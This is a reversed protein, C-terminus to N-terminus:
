YKYYHDTISSNGEKVCKMPYVFAENRSYNWMIPRAHTYRSIIRILNNYILVPSVQKIRSLLNSLMFTHKMVLIKLLLGMKEVDNFGSVPTGIPICGCAMAEILTIPMGEYDSSLTFFDSAELYDVINHKAGLFHIHDLAKQQIGLGTPGEYGDGIVLLTIDYGRKKM